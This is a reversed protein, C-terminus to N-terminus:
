EPLPAIIEYDKTPTDGARLQLRIAKPWNDTKAFTWMALYDDIKIFTGLATPLDAWADFEPMSVEPRRDQDRVAKRKNLNAWYDPHNPPYYGSNLDYWRLSGDAQRSGDTWQLVPRAVLSSTMLTWNGTAQDLSTVGASPASPFQDLFPTPVWNGAPPGPVLVKFYLNNNTPTKGILIDWDGALPWPIQQGFWEWIFQRPTRPAGDPAPQLSNYQYPLYRLMGLSVPLRDQLIMANVDADNVPSSFAPMAALNVDLLLRSARSIVWSRSSVRSLKYCVVAANADKAMTM